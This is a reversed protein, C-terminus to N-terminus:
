GATAAGCSSSRSALDKVAYDGPNAVEESRGIAVWDGWWIREREDDYTQWSTYEHGALTPRPRWDREDYRLHHRDREAQM